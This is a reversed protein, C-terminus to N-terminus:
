FRASITDIFVLDLFGFLALLWPMKEAFVYFFAVGTYFLKFAIGVKVPVQLQVTPAVSLQVQTSKDPYLYNVLSAANRKQGSEFLSACGGLVFIMGVVTWRRFNRM